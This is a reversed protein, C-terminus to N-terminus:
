KMMGEKEKTEKDLAPLGYRAKTEETFLGIMIDDVRSQNVEASTLERIAEEIEKELRSANNLAQPMTQANEIDTKTKDLAQRKPRKEEEM